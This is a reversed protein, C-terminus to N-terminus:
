TNLHSFCMLCMIHRLMLCLVAIDGIEEVKFRVFNHVLVEVPLACVVLVSDQAGKGCM